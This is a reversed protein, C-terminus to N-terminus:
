VQQGSSYVFLCVFLCCCCFVLIPHLIFYCWHKAMTGVKVNSKRGQNRERITIVHFNLYIIGIGTSVEGLNVQEGLEQDYHNIVTVSFYSPSNDLRLCEHQCYSDSFDLFIKLSSVVFM